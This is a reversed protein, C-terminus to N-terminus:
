ITHMTKVGDVATLVEGVMSHTKVAHKKLQDFGIGEAVCGAVTGNSNERLDKEVTEGDRDVLLSDAMCRRLTRVNEEECEMILKRVVGTDVMGRHSQTGMSSVTGQTGIPPKNGSPASTKFSRSFDRNTQRFAMYNKKMPSARLWDGYQLERSEDGGNSVSSVCEIDKHGLLGCIYCFNPLREYWLLVRLFSGWGFKELISDVGMFVGIKKGITKAMKSNMWKLPLGYIRVFFGARDFRYDEPRLDGDFEKLVLLHKDFTWPSGELVRIKDAKLMLAVLWAKTECLDSEQLGEDLIVNDHEEDTFTLNRWSGVLDDVM